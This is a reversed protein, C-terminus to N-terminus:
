LEEVVRKLRDVRHTYRSTLWTLVNQQDTPYLNGVLKECVGILELAKQEIADLVHAITSGPKQLLYQAFGFPVRKEWQLQEWEGIFQEVASTKEILTQWFHRAEPTPAYHQVFGVYLATDITKRLAYYTEWPLKNEKECVYLQMKAENIEEIARALIQVAELENAQALLHYYHSSFYDGALVSLQRNREASLSDGYELRVTEHTDLGLQVLTTTVCLIQARPKAMGSECLFFYLLALRNEAIPPLDVYREIYPEAILQRVRDAIERIDKTFVATERNM